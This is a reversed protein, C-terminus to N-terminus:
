RDSYTYITKHMKMGGSSKNSIKQPRRNNNKNNDDNDNDNNDNNDDNNDNYITESPYIGTVIGEVVKHDFVLNGNEDKYSFKQQDKIIKSIYTKKISFSM